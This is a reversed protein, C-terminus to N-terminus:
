MEATNVVRIINDWQVFVCVVTACCLAFRFSSTISNPQALDSSPSCALIYLGRVILITFPQLLPSHLRSVSHSPRDYAVSACM